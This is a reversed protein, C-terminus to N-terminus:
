RGVDFVEGELRSGPGRHVPDSSGPWTSAPSGPGSPGSEWRSSVPSALAVNWCAPRIRRWSHFFLLHRRCWSSRTPHSHSSPHLPFSSIGLLGYIGTPWCVAPRMISISLFAAEEYLSGVALPHPSGRNRLSIQPIQTSSLPGNVLIRRLFILM